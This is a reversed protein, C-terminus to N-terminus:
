KDELIFCVPLYITFLSLWTEGQWLFCKCIYFPLPCSYVRHPQIPILLILIIEYNRIYMCISTYISVFTHVSPSTYTLEKEWRQTLRSAFSVETTILVGLVWTNTELYWYGIFIILAGQLFPQNWRQPLSLVLHLETAFHQYSLILCPLFVWVM